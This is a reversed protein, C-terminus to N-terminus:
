AADSEGRPRLCQQRVEESQLLAMVRQIDEALPRDAGLTVSVSRVVDYLKRYDGGMVEKPGRLDAAQAPAIAEIAM